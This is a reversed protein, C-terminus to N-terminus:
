ERRFGQLIRELQVRHIGMHVGALAHWGWADMPGFWPHAFRVATKLDPAAAVAVLLADCAAEYEAMVSATVAPGPKVTATSAEGPSRFLM